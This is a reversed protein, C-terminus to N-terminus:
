NRWVLRNFKFQHQNSSKLLLDLVTEKSSIKLGILISSPTMSRNLSFLHLSHELRVLNLFLNLGQEVRVWILFVEPCLVQVLMVGLYLRVLSLFVKMGPKLWTLM